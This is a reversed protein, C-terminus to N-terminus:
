WSMKTEPSSYIEKFNSDINSFLNNNSNEINQNFTIIFIVCSIILLSILIRIISEKKIKNEIFYIIVFAPILFLGESRISISLGLILFAFFVLNKKLM